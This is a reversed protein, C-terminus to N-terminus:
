RNSFGYKEERKKFALEGGELVDCVHERIGCSFLIGQIPQSEPLRFSSELAGAVYQFRYEANERNM